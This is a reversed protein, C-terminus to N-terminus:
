SASAPSNLTQLWGANYLLNSNCLSVRLCRYWYFWPALFTARCLFPKGYLRSSSLECEQYGCWFFPFLSEHSCDWCSPHPCPMGVAWLGALGAWSCAELGAFLGQRLLYPPSSYLFVDRHRNKAEVHNPILSM